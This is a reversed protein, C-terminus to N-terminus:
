SYQDDGTELAEANIELDAGRTNGADISNSASKNNYNAEEDTFKTRHFRAVTYKENDPMSRFNEKIVTCGYFVRDHGAKMEKPLKPRKELVKCNEFIGKYRKAGDPIDPATKLSECGNFM